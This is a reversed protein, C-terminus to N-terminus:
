SVAAVHYKKPNMPVVGKGSLTLGCVVPRLKELMNVLCHMLKLGVGSTDSYGEPGSADRKLPIKNPIKEFYLGSKRM